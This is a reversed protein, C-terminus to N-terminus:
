TEIFLITWFDLRPLEVTLTNGERQWLAPMLSLDDQDPSAWWVKSVTNIENVKIQFNSFTEPPDLAKTWLPEQIGSFNILNISIGNSSRRPIAWVESPTEVAMTVAEAIPGNLEGYRVAFDYYKRLSSMLEADIAQHKPFYPDTLLRNGEGVEIRVGGTAFILADALLINTLRDAPLYLAIVVPRNGSIKRANSVIEWLDKYHPTPPWVEIYEFDQESSALAEIPWNGVANFTVASGTHRSKLEKIFHRFAAPIDVPDGNKKFGKKPEGYQDVHLGDFPLEELVKQCEMLLHDIWSSEPSPDMLGLFGEIDWM